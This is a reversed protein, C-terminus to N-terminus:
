VRAPREIAELLELAEAGSRSDPVGQSGCYLYHRSLAAVSKDYSRKAKSTMGAAEYALGLALWTHPSPLSLEKYRKIFFQAKRWLDHKHSTRICLQQLFCVALKLSIDALHPSAEYVRWYSKIAVSALGAQLLCDGYLEQAEYNEPHRATMKSLWKRIEATSDSLGILRKLEKWHEPLDERECIFKFTLAALEYQGLAEATKTLLRKLRLKGPGEKAFSLQDELLSRSDEFRSLEIFLASLDATVAFYQAEGALELLRHRTEVSLGAVESFMQLTRPIQKQAISVEADRLQLRLLEGLQELDTCDSFSPLPPLQGQLRKVCDLRVQAETKLGEVESSLVQSFAAQAAELDNIQQYLRGCRLWLEPSDYADVARVSELFQLATDPMHLREYEVGVILFLDPYHHVSQQFLHDFVQSAEQTRGVRSYCIGKKVEIDLPFAPNTLTSLFELCGPADDQKIYLECLLNVLHDDHHLPLIEKLVQLAKAPQELIMYVEVLAKVIAPNYDEALIKHYTKAAKRYDGQLEMCVAREKLVAVRDDCHALLARSFCYNAEKFHSLEKFMHGVKVWLQSDQPTLQAALFYCNAAKEPEKLESHILGLVNLPEALNPAKRIIINLLEVAQDFEKFIFHQHAQGLLHEVEQSLGERTRKNPREM